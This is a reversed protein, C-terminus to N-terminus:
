LFITDYNIDKMFKLNLALCNFDILARSKQKMRNAMDFISGFDSILIGKPIYHSGLFCIPGFFRPVLIFM